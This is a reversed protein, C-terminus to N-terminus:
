SAFSYLHTSFVLCLMLFRSLLCLLRVKCNKKRWALSFYIRNFFALYYDTFNALKVNLKVLKENLKGLAASPVSFVTKAAAKELMSLQEKQPMQLIEWDWTVFVLTLDVLSANHLCHSFNLKSFTYLTNFSHFSHIYVNGLLACCKTQCHLSIYHELWIYYCRIAEFHTKAQTQNDPKNLSATWYEISIITDICFIPHASKFCFYNHM